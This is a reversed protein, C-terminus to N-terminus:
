NRSVSTCSTATPVTYDKGELRLKGRRARRGRRQGALYDAYAITRRPHIWKEFDTHIVGAAAPGQHRRHITLGHKRETWTFYTILDLLQLRV